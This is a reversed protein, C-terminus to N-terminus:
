EVRQWLTHCVYYSTEPLHKGFVPHNGNPDELCKLYDFSLAHAEGCDHCPIMGVRKDSLEMEAAITFVGAITPTGGLIIKPRRYTKTRDKALKSSDGQGRLNLNCNDPEGGM